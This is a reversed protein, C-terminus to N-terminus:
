LARSILEFDRNVIRGTEASLRCPQRDAHYTSAYTPLTDRYGELLRHVPTNHVKGALDWVAVDVPGIGMRDNKRLIMKAQNYFLERELANKGILFPSFMRMQEVVAPAGSVPEGTIGENTHVQIRLVNRYSVSGPEYFQGASFALDSTLDKMPISYRTLQIETIIPWGAKISRGKSGFQHLRGENAQARVGGM